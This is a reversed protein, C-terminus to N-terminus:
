VYLGGETRRKKSLENALYKLAKRDIKGNPLTPLGEIIEVFKPAKYRALKNKCQRILASETVHSSTSFDTALVVFAFGVESYKDDPVSTVVAQAVEPASELADEIELPYINYGGSKFMESTRGVLQLNGDSTVRGIDGTKLWGDDTFAERTAEPLNLYGPLFTWHKVYVEGTVGKAETFDLVRDASEAIKMRFEPDPVGVSNALEDVSAGERSSTLSAVTESSGYVTTMRIGWDRLKMVYSAPLAAGGWAVLCLNEQAVAEFGDYNMLSIIQTPIQFLANLREAKIANVTAPVDFNEMFFLYGGAYQVPGVIDGVCGTHNVPLNCLVRPTSVGWRKSQVIAIRALAAQHALAGKPKGTTGSTYFLAGPVSVKLKSRCAQLAEADRQTLFVKSSGVEGGHFDDFSQPKFSDTKGVAARLEDVSQAKLSPNFLVLDPEADALIHALEQRKYAPNLGLWIGGVQLVALYAVMFEVSPNTMFAVTDGHGVGARMLQASLHDVEAGLEEYTLTRTADGAAPQNRYKERSETLLQSLSKEKILKDVNM